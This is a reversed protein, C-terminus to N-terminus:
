LPVYKSGDWRARNGKADTYVQGTVPGAQQGQPAAGAQNIFQGTQNDIVQSPRTFAVGQPSVEQGGPVVTYRNAADPKGGIARLSTEAQKRQEATSNPDLLVNRLQQLQQAGATAVGRQANESAARGAEVAIRARDTQFGMNARTNAGGQQIQERTLNGQQQIGERQLSGAQRMGEQELGPQAGRATTDARLLAELELQDTNSPNRGGWRRTNTISSAATRANDIEKRLAWDNSSNRVVPTPVGAPAAMAAQAAAPNFGRAALNSAALDNQASPQGTSGTPGTMAAGASDGYSSGSRFVGPMVETAGPAAPGAGPSSPVLDSSPAASKVAMPASVPAAATPAAAPSVPSPTGPTAVSQPQAAPDAQAGTLGRAFSSIGRGWPAVANYASEGVATIPATIAGRVAAGVAQAPNGANWAASADESAGRAVATTNPLPNVFTSGGAAPAPRSGAVVPPGAPTPVGAPIQAVRQDLGPAAPQQAAQAGQVYMQTQRRLREAEEATVAGGQAFFARNSEDPAAAGQAGGRVPTHTDGKMADLTEIGIAHVKEPTLNYEGNSIQAKVKQARAPNFGRRNGGGMGDLAEAGIAKTSDAPMIYSGVPLDAPIDDSTGTGPGRVMGGNALGQAKERRQAAGMGSYDTVAPAPAPAVPAPASAAPAPAPAAQGAKYAAIRKNREEDMGFLQKVRGMVGVPGGDALHQRAIQPNFGQM